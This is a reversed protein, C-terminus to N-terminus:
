TLKAKALRAASTARRQMPREVFQHRPSAVFWGAAPRFGM